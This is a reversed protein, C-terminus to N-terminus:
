RIYTPVKQAETASLTPQGQTHKYGDNYASQLNMVARLVINSVQIADEYRYTPSGSTAGLGHGIIEHASIERNDAAQNIRTNSNKDLLETSTTADYIIVSFTTTKDESVLTTGGGDNKDFYGGIRGDLTNGIGEAVKKDDISVNENRKIVSVYHDNKDNIATMYGKALAKADESKLKAVANDFDKQNIKKFTKGKLQFLARMNKGDDGQFSNQIIELEREASQKNAGKIKDGLFDNYRLPNNAM